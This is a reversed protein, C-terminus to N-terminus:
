LMIEYISDKDTKLVAAIKSMLAWAYNNANISRKKRYQVTKIRLKDKDKLKEYEPLINQTTSFTINIDGTLYDKTIDKIKGVFEM